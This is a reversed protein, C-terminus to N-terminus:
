EDIQEGRCSRYYACNYRCDGAPEHCHDCWCQCVDGDENPGNYGGMCCDCINPDQEYEEEEELDSEEEEIIEEVVEENSRPVSMKYM